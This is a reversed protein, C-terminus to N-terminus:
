GCRAGLGEVLVDGADLGLHLRVPDQGLVDLSVGLRDEVHHLERSALHQGDAQDLRAPVAGVVGRDLPGNELGRRQRQRGRAIEKRALQFKGETRMVFSMLLFPYGPKRKRSTSNRKTAAGAAACSCISIVPGPTCRVGIAMTEKGPSSLTPVLRVAMTRASRSLLPSKRPRSIGGSEGCGFSFEGM